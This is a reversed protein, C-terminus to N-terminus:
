PTSRRSARSTATRSSSGASRPARKGTSGTATDPASRRSSKAGTPRAGARKAGTRANKEAQAALFAATIQQKQRLNLALKEPSLENGAADYEAPKGVIDEAPLTPLILRTLDSYVAEMASSLADAEEDTFSDADEGVALDVMENARGHLRAFRAHQQLSFDDYASIRHRVGNVRVYRPEPEITELTLVDRPLVAALRESPTGPRPADGGGPGTHLQDM